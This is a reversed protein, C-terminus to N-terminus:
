SQLEVVVIADTLICLWCTMIHKVPSCSIAASLASGMACDSHPCWGGSRCSWRGPIPVVKSSYKSFASTYWQINHSLFNKWPSPVLLKKDQPALHRQCRQVVVAASDSDVVGHQLHVLHDHKLSALHHVSEYLEHIHRSSESGPIWGWYFNYQACYPMELGVM